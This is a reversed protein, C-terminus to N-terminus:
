EEGMIKSIRDRAREAYESEPFRSVIEEYLESAHKPNNQLEEFQATEFLEKAKEGACGAISFSLILFLILILNKM